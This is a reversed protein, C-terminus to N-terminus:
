HNKKDKPYMGLHLTMQFVETHNYWGNSLNPNIKIAKSKWSNETQNNFHRECTYKYKQRCLCVCFYVCEDTHFSRWEKKCSQAIGAYDIHWPKNVIDELPPHKPQIWNNIIWQLM